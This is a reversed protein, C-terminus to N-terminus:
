KNQNAFNVTVNQGAQLKCGAKVPLCFCGQFKLFIDWVFNAIKKNFSILKAFLETRKLNAFQAIFQELGLSGSL